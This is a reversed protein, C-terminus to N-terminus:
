VCVGYMCYMICVYMCACVKVHGKEEECRERERAVKTPPYMERERECCKPPPSVDTRTVFYCMPMYVYM